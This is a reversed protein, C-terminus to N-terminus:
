VLRVSLAVDGVTTDPAALIALGARSGDGKALTLRLAMRGEGDVPNHGIRAPGSRATRRDTSL